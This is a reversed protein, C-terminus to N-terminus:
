AVVDGSQETTTVDSSNVGTTDVRPTTVDNPNLSLPSENMTATDLAVPENVSRTLVLFAAVVLIACGIVLIITDNRKM